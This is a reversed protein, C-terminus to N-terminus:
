FCYTWEGHVSVEWVTLCFLNKRKILKDDWINIITISPQSVCFDLCLSPIFVTLPIVMPSPRKILVVTSGNKCPYL